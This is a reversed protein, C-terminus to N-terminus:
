QDEMEIYAFELEDGSVFKTEASGCAPCSFEYDVVAFRRGCQLCEQQQPCREITLICSELDTDKVLAGFCFSLSDPDIGALEGIRLGIGALRMGPRMQAEVKATDLVSNAIALEHM